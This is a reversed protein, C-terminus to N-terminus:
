SALAATWREILTQIFTKGGIETQAIIEFVRIQCETFTRRVNEEKDTLAYYWDEHAGAVCGMKRRAHEVEHVAVAGDRQLGYKMYEHYASAQPIAREFERITPNQKVRICATRVDDAIAAFSEQTKCRTAGNILIEGTAPRFYSSTQKSDFGVNIKTVMGPGFGKIKAATGFEIYCRIFTEFVKYTPDNEVYVTQIDRLTTDSADVTQGFQALREAVTTKYEITKNRMWASMVAQVPDRYLEPVKHRQVVMEIYLSVARQQTERQDFTYQNYMKEIDPKLATLLQLISYETGPITYAAIFHGLSMCRIIDGNTPSAIGHKVTEDRLQQMTMKSVLCQGITSGSRMQPFVLNYTVALEDAVFLSTNNKSILKISALFLVDYIATDFSEAVSQNLTLKERSQTVTYSGRPINVAFGTEILALHSMSMPQGIMRMFDGITAFPVGNTLVYSVVHSPLMSVHVLGRTFGGLCRKSAKFTQLDGDGSPKVHSNLNLPTLQSGQALSIEALDADICSLIQVATARIVVATPLPKWDPLLVVSVATGVGKLKSSANYSMWPTNRVKNQLDVVRGSGDARIPLSFWTMNRREQATGPPSTNVIVKSAQSYVNFFGTGMEGTATPSAAKSSYFPIHMMLLNDWDMGVPDVVSLVLQDGYKELMILIRRDPTASTQSRIADIANQILESLIATFPDRTNGENIVIGVIQMDNQPHDTPEISKLLSFENGRTVTTNMVKYVLQSTMFVADPENDTAFGTNNFDVATESTLNLADMLKLARQVQLVGAFRDYGNHIDRATLLQVQPVAMDFAMVHSQVWHRLEESKRASIIMHRLKLLCCELMLIKARIPALLKQLTDICVSMASRPYSKEGALITTWHHSLHFHSPQVIPLANFVLVLSRQEYKSADQDFFYLHELIQLDFNDRDLSRKTDLVCEKESSPITSFLKLDPTSQNSNVPIGMANGIVIKAVRM